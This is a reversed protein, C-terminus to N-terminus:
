GRFALFRKIVSILLFVVAFALAAVALIGIFTLGEAETYFMPTVSSFAGVIWSGIGSFISFVDNAMDEGTFPLQRFMTCFAAYSEQSCTAPSDMFDLIGGVKISAGSSALRVTWDDFYFVRKTSSYDLDSYSLVTGGLSFDGSFFIKYDVDPPAGDYSPIYYLEWRGRITVEDDAAQAPVALSFMLILAFCFPLVTRAHRHLFLKLKKM